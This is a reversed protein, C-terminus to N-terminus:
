KGVVEIDSFAMREGQALEIGEVRIVTARTPKCRVTQWIPNNVINSFEGEGLVEWHNWDTTASIRYRTIVGNRTNQPPLYKFATIEKEQNLNVFMMKDAGFFIYYNSSHKEGANPTDHNIHPALYIGVKSILPSAKADLITFRLKTATITPFCIIRRHGITTLGDGIESLEDKLSKWEGDIYAELSFKKVRQGLPIYEEALFRNFTTPQPFDLTLTATTVGEDTAWYTKDKGDTVKKAAFRKNGSRVNSATLKAKKALDTKFVEQIMKAIFDNNDCKTFHRIVRYAANNISAMELISKGFDTIKYYRTKGTNGVNSYQIYGENILNKFQDINYGKRKGQPKLVSNFVDIYSYPNGDNFVNLMKVYIMDKNLHLFKNYLSALYQIPYGTIAHTSDHIKKFYELSSINIPNFIKNIDVIDPQEEPAYFIIGNVFYSQLM